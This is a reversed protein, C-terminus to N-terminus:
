TTSDERKVNSVVKMAGRATDEVHWLAIGDRNPVCRLRRGGVLRDKYRRLQYGLAQHSPKLDARQQKPFCLAEISARLENTRADVPAAAGMPPYLVEVIDKSTLGPRGPFRRHLMWLGKLIVALHRIEESVSTADTVCANMPDQGGAWVISRPILDSWPEFSGWRICGPVAPKGAAVYGRLVTLADAVLSARQQLVWPILDAHEFGTRRRPNDLDSELRPLLVRTPMDGIMEINNGTGFLVTKWVLTPMESKGLIRAQVTDTATIYRDLAPGGFPQAINDLSLFATGQLAFAGLVKEQEEDHKPYNARPMHRGSAVIAITDTCLSKGTGPTNATFLFPPTSGAIAPRALITFIAAVPVSGHGAVFPFDRYVRLLRKLAAECEKQTPKDPVKPFKCSPSYLYGTAEDYGACQCLTGDPRMFPAEAVGVLNRMGPWVKRHWLGAVLPPTPLCRIISKRHPRSIIAVRTLREALTPQEMLHIRPTGEVLARRGPRVEVSADAEQKSIRTVHVLRYDRTFADRDELLADTAADINDALDPGLVIEPKDVKYRKTHPRNDGPSREHAGIAFENAEGDTHPQPEEEEVAEEEAHEVEELMGQQSAEFDNLEENLHDDTSHRESGCIACAEVGAGGAEEAQVM